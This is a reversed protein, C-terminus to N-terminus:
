RCLADILDWLQQGHSLYAVYCYPSVLQNQGELDEGYRDALVVVPIQEVMGAETRIRQGIVIADDASFEYQNVLILDFASDLKARSIADAANLTVTVRYGRSALNETLLPRAEDDSEVLLISISSPHNNSM